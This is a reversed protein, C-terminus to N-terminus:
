LPLEEETKPSSKNGRKGNSATKFGKTKANILETVEQVDFPKVIV